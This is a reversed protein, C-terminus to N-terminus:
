ALSQLPLYNKNFGFQTYDAQKLKGFFVGIFLFTCDHDQVSYYLPSYRTNQSM